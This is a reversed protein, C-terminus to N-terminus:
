PPGFEPHKEHFIKRAAARRRQAIFERAGYGGAFGVFLVVVLVASGMAVGGFAVREFHRVPFKPCDRPKDTLVPRRWVRQGKWSVSKLGAIRPEKEHRSYLARTLNVRWLAIIAAAAVVTV